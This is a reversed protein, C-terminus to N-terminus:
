FRMFLQLQSQWTGQSDVSGSLSLNPNIQYTVTGQSPIDNRNPAALVSFDFRETIAVGVETVLALQPPVQGSVRDKENQVITSVYTPYLAFQLRQSFSDSLTGLVPSLLSQGLVAALAAGAGAGSLGALSNGGILALLQPQPLSPTSRLRISQSLRDAPGSASLMVKILRLEGGAGLNGLGNTDFISKSFANDDDNTTVNDSVRTVMAIDVYPILGLSPTFVAVNPAARDLNFTTTFMTVRGSLLQVVGRLELSPDLAGNLNLLGATTFNYWPQMEVRLKPGLTVRLDRFGIFPLKPLSAKISRSTEAEVDAGRLVLPEKFDWKEELLEDVSAAETSFAKTSDTKQALPNRVRSLVSRGPRIAGDSVELIGGIQPNVVAGTIMLDAGVNVDANPLKLRAKELQIRLPKPEPNPRLLALAGSGELQGGSGFRGKLSQVELRDFDFVMSGNVKALSQGQAKFAAEKIVIYGNAKPARLTGGLLLRLDADGKEWSVTDNTLGTLFKLGDGLSVIRVDLPQDAAFPIRGTVTVPETSTESVLALDLKLAQDSLLVQGRKLAIPNPGLRADELVLESSIAAKSGDLRYTGSMGLAGMLSRPVPAVLALLSFPLHAFSFQGEGGQLPGEIRATFPKVQLAYDADDGEIWLHGRANLDLNLRSIRPGTLDIVADVQGRLDELRFPERDRNEQRAQLLAKRADRLAQLQGDLNGGFTNVLLTGLDAASGQELPADQNLRPLSLASNSLWRASLGRAVAEGKFPGDVRGEADVTIQGTDPPLLEGTIAYRRDSYRGTLLIQQLQLGMIGPRKISLDGTMALPQLGLTGEGSLRGYVGEWRQRPPLALELGDVTLDNATWQYAAPTGRLQLDGKRRRLMVESPLWNAGLRAELSGAIVAGVSAMSLVGGGGSRGLFTGSWDEMLRVAGARPHNVALRLDPRLADLPGQVRGSAAITGDMETGLLPGLRKLPYSELRLDAELPGTKLGGAGLSLPMRARATLDPSRFQELKLLGSQATWGAQLSWAQLLPNSAQAIALSLEPKSSAGTLRLEGKLPAATGLLSPVLPLRKWAPGALDLRQTAVKLQPHLAGKAKVDLGPAKLDLGDLTASWNQSDSWDASLQAGLRLPGDVPITDPLAWLGNIRLKPQYWDGNLQFALNRNQDLEKLAGKLDFSRNLRVSGGLSARYPGYAWRSNTVKLVDGRCSVRLQPSELTHEMAQGSFEARQLSVGGSCNAQGRSWGLRLNGGLQGRMQLPLKSPLLGQYRALQIRELRTTLEFEPRVWRGRAKVTIRGREPLVFKLVGDARHEDLRIGSWGAATLSLGAPAIRIRAPNSFRVKLDVRPPDGQKPFPGPVWYAGKNNRRLELHAGRVRVQLVPRLRQVTALPDLGITIRQIEATSQDLPGKGVQVPGLAIGQLGLGRYRGISVPHGLPRSIQAEIGPRVRQFLSAACRDAAFWLAGGGILSGGLVSLVLRNRRMSTPGGRM